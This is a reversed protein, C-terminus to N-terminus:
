LRLTNGVDVVYESLVVRAASSICVCKYDRKFCSWYWFVDFDTVEAYRDFYINRVWQAAEVALFKAVTFICTFSCLNTGLTTLSPMASVSVAILHFAWVARSGMSGIAFVTGFPYFLVALTYLCFPANWESFCALNSISKLVSYRKTATCSCSHHAGPTSWCREGSPTDIDLCVESPWISLLSRDHDGKQMYCEFMDFLMHREQQLNATCCHPSSESGQSTDAQGGGGPPAAVDSWFVVFSSALGAKLRGCSLGGLPPLFLFLLGRIFLGGWDSKSMM